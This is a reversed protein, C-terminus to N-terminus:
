KETRCVFDVSQHSWPSNGHKNVARVRFWRKLCVPKPETTEIFRDAGSTTGVDEWQAGETFDKRQVEYRIIEAGNDNGNDIASPEHSWSVLITLDVPNWSLMIPPSPTAPITSLTRTNDCAYGYDGWGLKNFARLRFCLSTAPKLNPVVYHMSATRLEVEWEGITDWNKGVTLRALEYMTVESGRCPPRKWRVLLERQKVQEITPSAVPDPVTIDTPIDSSEPGWVSVGFTNACRIRFKLTAGPLLNSIAAWPNNGSKDDDHCVFRSRHWKRLYAQNVEVDELEM